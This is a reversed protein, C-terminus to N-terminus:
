ASATGREFIQDPTQDGSTSLLGGECVDLAVLRDIKERRALKSAESARVFGGSASEGVGPSSRAATTSRMAVVMKCCRSPSALVGVHWPWFMDAAM